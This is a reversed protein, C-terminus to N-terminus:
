QLRTALLNSGAGWIVGAANWYMAREVVIRAPTTGLSEVIAGFRTGPALAFDSGVPVNFRSNATVTYERILPPGTELLVSVRLTAAFPSTNAILLYTQTAEAGAGQEGDAVAWKTGTATAGASNHAEYWAQGHPWWMSREAIIGVGNTVLLKISVATDALAPDELAVYVTRRSNAPVQYNKVVTAGSPLLYTAQLDAADTPHPNAFLLYLDFFGGTAGEAFFWETAPANVGASDHGAAFVGAASSYMAREVIIPLGNLSEIVGSVDTAALEPIGDVVLTFRSNPQVTYFRDIPLGTPRLFRVRVSAAATLSPNQILYFLDFFGHTAGEALYWRLAPAAVSGEAHAGGRTSQDWRMTRDIVVDADSEVVTSVNASGLGALTELDITRRAGAPVVVVHPVTVSDQTLFRFLVRAPMVGPNALAVRTSFFSGTAGEALYRTYLGRPHTQDVCEQANTRGDRDWDVAGDSADAASLGFQAEWDDAIGDGDQDDGGACATVAPQLARFEFPVTVPPQGPVAVSLLSPGAQSPSTTAVLASSSLFQVQTAAVGGVIVTAQDTFQSGLITLTTGGIAPGAAPQVATITPAGSAVPLYSYAGDSVALGGDTNTVIVPVPGAVITTPTTVTVSTPTSGTITAESAGFRVSAPAFGAGQITVSQQGTVPGSAPSMSTIVPTSQAVQYTYVVVNSSSTGHQVLVDVAVAFGSPPAIVRLVSGTGGALPTLTQAGWRVTDGGLFHGGQIEVIQGGAMPGSVPALGSIFPPDGPDDPIREIVIEPDSGGADTGPPIPTGSSSGDGSLNPDEVTGTPPVPDIVPPPPDPSTPSPISGTTSKGDDVPAVIASASFPAAAGANSGSTVFVLRAGNASIRPERSPGPLNGGGPAVSLRRTDGTLRDRLFVDREGNTDNAVLNTAASDFAVFRGEQTISARTSDGGTAEAESSSVSVRDTAVFGPEDMVGDGDLDRDHVFVDRQGNTDAVLNSAASDFAVYRGDLSIAPRLSDGDLAQAGGTSVNVRATRGLLRDHVCIDLRGNTDGAVLNNAATEFAVWRGNGSISPNRSFGRLAEVGDPGVSVRVTRIAGAEDFVGDSDADRDHLFVDLLDNGDSPVLNTARSEFAIFRGTASIAAQQSEGGLAQAGASSVSVRRLTDTVKDFVYVDAVGNTDDAVLAVTSEFAMYRGNFSFSPRRAGTLRRVDPVVFTFSSSGTATSTAVVVPATGAPRAPTVFSLRTASRVSVHSAPVGGVSVSTAGVVFGQGTVDVATGGATTGRFPTLSTITLTGLMFGATANRAQSMTVSCPGPGTCAGSWGSFTAGGTAGATLTVVTNFPYSQSCAGSAVGSAITCNIAPTLGAQSTVTGSGTGTGTVILTQPPGTFTATASRAQSMTLVCAAAGSCAGSWGSFTGGGTVIATLTVATNFPYSQSCAGSAVGGTITCNLAPVLGAQSTVTGSGTGAGSVTLTQAPSTFTATVSRAQSMTLACAGAGGCAGTWGSFTGGATAAATLTVATNFPYSQSCAGSAVGGTITCNIAPVLGAQSTVTGSGTGGGSVTLTQPPATFSATVSRAQTMSVPCTGTGGCAGTWGSFTGGGTPAATLTVATNFPYSQSCAGSAVGGTITCNIAPVLGAQSTVTGNGTGAGSVTLTQPLPATFAASAARAQSMTVSCTAGGCSGSWGNFSSGATGTATLTVVTGLPYTRQCFGSAVGATITCNIVPALGAQSTITGSGTGTGSVTLIPPTNVTVELELWALSVQYHSLMQGTLVAQGDLLQSLQGAGFNFDWAENNPPADTWCSAGQVCQAVLIGDVFLDVAATSPFTYGWIGRVQAAAISEGPLLTYTFTGITLLPFPGVPFYPGTYNPLQAIITRTQAAAPAPGLWFCAVLAPLALRTGLAFPSALAPM